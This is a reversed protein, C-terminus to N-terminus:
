PSSTLWRGSTRRKFKRAVYTYERGSTHENYRLTIVLKTSNHVLIRLVKRRIKNRIKSKRNRKRLLNTPIKTCLNFFYFNAITCNRTRVLRMMSIVFRRLLLMYTM